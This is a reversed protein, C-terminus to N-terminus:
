DNPARVVTMSRAGRVLARVNARRPPLADGGGSEGGRTYHLSLAYGADGRNWVIAYHGGHIGGDPYPAVQLVLAPRRRVTARYVVKPRVITDPRGPTRVRNTLRLDRGLNGRAPWHGQRTKLPFPECRGGFLIHFPVTRGAGSGTYSIQTLYQCAGREFDAQSMSFGAYREAGTRTSPLWTPCLVAIRESAALATCARELEGTIVSPESVRDTGLPRTDRSSGDCAAVFASMGALFV